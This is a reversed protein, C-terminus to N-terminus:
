AVAGNTIAGDAIAPTVDAFIELSLEVFEAAAPPLRRGDRWALSIDRRLAPAVLGIVAVEAGPSEADSRPLVALGLGRAVLRRIRQSENLELKIEPEFGAQHGAAVLLERLRAGERYSIFHEGALEHM